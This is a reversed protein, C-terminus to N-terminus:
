THAVRMVFFPIRSAYKLPCSTYIINYIYYIDVIYVASLGRRPAAVFLSKRMCQIYLIIYIIYVAAVYIINGCGCRLLGKRLQRLM